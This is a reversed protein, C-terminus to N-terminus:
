KITITDSINLKYKNIIKNIEDLRFDGVREPKHADTGIIIKVNPYESVIEWFEDRPYCISRKRKEAKFYDSTNMEIYIDNEIATKVMKRTLDKCIDNFEQNWDLFYEPHVFITFLGSKMGNIAADVYVKFDDYTLDRYEDKSVVIRKTFDYLRGDKFVHHLGLSLYDVKKRMEKVFKDNTEDYECEFGSLIKIDLYKLKAENIDNLYADVNSLPMRSQRGSQIKPNYRNANAMIDQYYSSNLFAGDFPIHATFGLESMELKKAEKVYDEIDNYGHICYKSHTHYNNM